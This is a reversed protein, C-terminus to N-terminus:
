GASNSITRLFPKAPGSNMAMVARCSRSRCPIRPGNNGTGISGFRDKIRHRHGLPQAGVQCPADDHMAHRFNGVGLSAQAFHGRGGVRPDRHDKLSRQQFQRAVGDFRSDCRASRQVEGDANRTGGFEGEFGGHFQSESSNAPRTSASGSRRGGPRSIPFRTTRVWPSGRNVPSHVQSIRAVANSFSRRGTTETVSTRTNIRSQRFSWEGETTRSPPGKTSVVENPIPNTREPDLQDHETASQRLPRSGSSERAQTADDAPAPPRGRESPRGPRQRRGTGRSARGLTARERM